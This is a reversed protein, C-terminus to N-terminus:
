REFAQEIAWSKKEDDLYSEVKNEPDNWLAEIWKDLAEAKLLDRDSDEIRRNDDKDIVKILWYGGKTASDEDRIPESVVGVEIESNFVFEGLVSSMKSPTAGTVKGGKEKSKDDQSLEKALKAFDEGAELRARAEQAEEKSGLLIVQVDAKEKREKRELVKLLWYGGQPAIVDDFISESVAELEVEPNFVLEDFASGAEGPTVWGLDGGDERSEEHESLEEALKAFDGGAELKGRVWLAVQESSLLIGHIRAKEPTVTRELM